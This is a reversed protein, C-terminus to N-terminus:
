NVRVIRSIRIPPLLTQGSAPAVQIKRAVDMGQVVRGFAAFGQGDLNRKGGFDLEPQRGICISFSDQATDPLGRAMFLSGDVHHLGTDRTRELPIPPFLDSEQMINAEAQVLEIKVRNTPQNSPTLTRFFDGNRYRGADVYRLFNSVTIPAHQADLEAEMNGLTTEIRVRVVHAGTAPPANTSQALAGAAVGGCWLM